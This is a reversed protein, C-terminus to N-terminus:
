RRSGICFGSVDKQVVQSLIILADVATVQGDCNADGRLQLSWGAPVPKGVVASLVGLADMSTIQGDGSPDGV